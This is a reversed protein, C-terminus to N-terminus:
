QAKVKLDGIALQWRTGSTPLLGGQRYVLNVSDEFSKTKGDQQYSGYIKLRLADTSTRTRFVERKEVKHGGWQTLKAQIAQDAQYGDANIAAIANADKQELANLYRDILVLPSAEGKPKMASIAGGAALLATAGIAIAIGRSQTSM